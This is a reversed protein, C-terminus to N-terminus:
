VIKMELQIRTGKGPASDIDLKSKWKEARQKMNLIGNGDPTSNMDYGKGDDVILMRVLHHDMEVKVSASTGGSYKVLNNVSEKFILYFDRRQDMKMVLGGRMDPFQLDAIINKGELMDAAYRKMRVFLKDLDDYRPSINWVIDSLSESIRQIEDGAKAIYNTAEQENSINKGTLVTLIHINSLSAGIDDHLNTSISNRMAQIKKLQSIRNQNIAYGITMVGLACLAIFWWRQWFPLHLLIPLNVERSKKGDGSIAYLQLHYQGPRLGTLTIIAQNNEIWEDKGNIGEIRYFYKTRTPHLWDMAAFELRIEKIGYKLDVQDIYNALLDDRYNIGDITVSTLHLIPSNEQLFGENGIDIWSVGNEINFFLKGDSTAMIPRDIYDRKIGDQRNFLQWLQADANPDFLALGASTGAWISGTADTTLHNIQMGPLDHSLNYSAIIHHDNASVIQVGDSEFGVWANGKRDITISNINPNALGKK